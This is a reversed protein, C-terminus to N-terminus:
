CFIIKQYYPKKFLHESMYIHKWIFFSKGSSMKGILFYIGNTAYKWNESMPKIQAMELERKNKNITEHILKEVNKETISKNYKIQSM